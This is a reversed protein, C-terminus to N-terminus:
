STRRLARFTIIHLSLAALVLIGPLLLYPLALVWAQSPEQTYVRFPSPMSLAATVIIVLLNVVGVVQFAWVAARSQALRPLLVFGLAFIGTIMDKNNGHWTMQIPALGEAHAALLAWEALLRFAQVGLLVRLPLTALADGFRSLSLAFALCLLVLFFGAFPPPLLEARYFVPEGSVAPLVALWLGLAVLAQLARDRGATHLVAYVFGLAVLVATILILAAAM